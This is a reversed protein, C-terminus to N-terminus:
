AAPSSPWSAMAAPSSPPGYTTVLAALALLPEGKSPWASRGVRPRFAVGALVWGVAIGSPSASSSRASSIGPSGGCAGTPSAGPSAVLLAAYVFPFALGDNLGAESTLAFRM